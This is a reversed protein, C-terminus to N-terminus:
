NKILVYTWRFSHATSDTNVMVGLFRGVDGDGPTITASRIRLYEPASTVGWSVLTYGEPPYYETELEDNAPVSVNGSNQYDFETVVPVYPM